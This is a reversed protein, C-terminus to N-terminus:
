SDPQFVSLGSFNSDTTLSDESDDESEHGNDGSKVTYILIGICTVMMGSLYACDYTLSFIYFGAIAAYVDAALINITAAGCGHRNLMIPLVSYFIFQSLAMAVMWLVIKPQESFITVLTGGEMSGVKLLSLLGASWCVTGMYPYIGLEEIIREQCVTSAGFLFAGVACMIDGEVNSKDEPDYDSYVILMVGLLSLAVAAYQYWNYSKHLLIVSIFIAAPVAL